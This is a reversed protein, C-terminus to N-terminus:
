SAATASVERMWRDPVVDGHPVFWRLVKYHHKRLGHPHGKTLDHYPRLRELKRRLVAKQPQYARTDAANKRYQSWGICGCVGSAGFHPSGLIDDIFVHVREGSTNRVDHFAVIARDVLFPLATMVDTHVTSRDNAGDHWLLRIDDHWKPWFQDSYTAHFEVLDMVGERRLNALLPASDIPDVSVIGPTETRKSAMALITTSKGRYAGLEVVRGKATPHAGLLALFRIESPQLWGEVRAATETVRSLFATWDSNTDVIADSERLIL